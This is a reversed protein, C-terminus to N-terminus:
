VVAVSGVDVGRLQGGAGIAPRGRSGTARVLEVLPQGYIEVAAAAGIRFIAHQGEFPCDVAINERQGRQVRRRSEVPRRQHTGACAIGPLVAALERDGVGAARGM